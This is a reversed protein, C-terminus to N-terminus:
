QKYALPPLVNLKKQLLVLLPFDDNRMHMDYTIDVNRWALLKWFLANYKGREKKLGDERGRVASATVAVALLNARPL